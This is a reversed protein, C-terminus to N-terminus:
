NKKMMELSRLRAEAEMWRRFAAKENEPRTAWYDRRAREAEARAKDLKM